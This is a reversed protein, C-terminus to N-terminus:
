GLLWHYLFALLLLLVLLRNSLFLSKQWSILKLSRYEISNKLIERLISCNKVYEITNLRIFCRLFCIFLVYKYLIACILKYLKLGLLSGMSYYSTTTVNMSGLILMNYFCVCYLSVCKYWVSSFSIRLVIAMAIVIVIVIDLAYLQM